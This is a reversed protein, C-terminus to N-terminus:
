EPPEPPDTEVSLWPTTAARRYKEGLRRHWEFRADSWGRADLGSDDIMKFSRMEHHMALRLFRVQRRQLEVSAGLIIGVGAVAIMSRRTTMRLLQM